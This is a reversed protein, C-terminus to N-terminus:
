KIRTRRKKNNSKSGTFVLLFVALMIIGVGTVSFLLTGSGGALPLETNKFNPLKYIVKDGQIEKIFAPPLPDGAAKITIPNEKNTVDVHIRWQGM